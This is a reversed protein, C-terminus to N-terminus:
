YGTRINRLLRKAIDSNKLHIRGKGEPFEPKEKPPSNESKHQTNHEEKTTKDAPSLFRGTTNESRCEAQRVSEPEAPVMEAPKTYSLFGSHLKYM